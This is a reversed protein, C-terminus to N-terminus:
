PPKRPRAHQLASSYPWSLADAANCLVASDPARSASQPGAATDRNFPGRVPTAKM